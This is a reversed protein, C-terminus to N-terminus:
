TGNHVLNRAVKKIEPKLRNYDPDWPAPAEYRKTRPNHWADVLPEADRREVRTYGFVYSLVFSVAIVSPVLRLLM